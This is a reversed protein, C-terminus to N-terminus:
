PPGELEALVVDSGDAIGRNLTRPGGFVPGMTSGSGRPWCPRRHARPDQLQALAQLGARVKSSTTLLNGWASKERRTEKDLPAAGGVLSGCLPALPVDKAEAIREVQLGTDADIKAMALPLREHEPLQGTQTSAFFLAPLADEIYPLQRAL